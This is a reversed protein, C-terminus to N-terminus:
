TEIKLFAILLIVVTRPQVTVHMIACPKDFADEFGNFLDVAAVLPFFCVSILISSKEFYVICKALKHM